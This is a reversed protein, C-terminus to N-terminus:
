SFPESIEGLLCEVEDCSPPQLSPRDAGDKPFVLQVRVERVGALGNWEVRTGRGRPKIQRSSETTARTEANPGSRVRTLATVM